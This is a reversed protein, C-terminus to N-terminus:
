SCRWNLRPANRTVIPPHQLDLSDRTEFVIVDPQQSAARAVADADHIRGFRCRHFRRRRPGAQRQRVYEVRVMVAVMDAGINRKFRSVARRDHTRAGVLRANGADVHRHGVALCVSETGLDRRHEVHGAVRAAVNREPERATRRKQPSASNASPQPRM